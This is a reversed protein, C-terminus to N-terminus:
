LGKALMKVQRVCDQMNRSNRAKQTDKNNQVNMAKGHFLLHPDNEQIGLPHGSPVDLFCHPLHIPNLHIVAPDALYRILQQRDDPLPLLPGQLAHVCHNYQICHM